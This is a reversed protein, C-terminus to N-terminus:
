RYAKNNEPKFKYIKYSIKRALIIPVIFYRNRIPISAANYLAALQKSGDGFLRFMLSIIGSPTTNEETEDESHGNMLIGPWIENFLM